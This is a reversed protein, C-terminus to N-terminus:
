LGLWLGCACLSLLGSLWLWLRLFAPVPVPVPVPWLGCAVPVPVAVTVRVQVNLAQCVFASLATVLRDPRFVQVVMVQQFDSLSRASSPFSVEPTESAAWRAWSDGADLGLSNVLHPFNSQPVRWGSM